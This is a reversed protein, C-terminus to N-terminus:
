HGLFQLSLQCTTLQLRVVELPMVTVYQGRDSLEGTSVGNFSGHFYFCVFCTSSFLSTLLLWFSTLFGQTFSSFYISFFSFVLIWCGLM